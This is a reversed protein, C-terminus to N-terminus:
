QPHVETDVSFTYVKPSGIQAAKVNKAGRYTLQYWKHDKMFWRGVGIDKVKMERERRAM